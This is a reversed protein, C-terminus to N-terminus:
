REEQKLYDTLITWVLESVKGKTEKKAIEQLEKKEQETVRITITANRPNEKYNAM